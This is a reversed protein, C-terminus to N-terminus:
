RPWTFLSLLQCVAVQYAIDPENYEWPNKRWDLDEILKKMSGNVGGIVMGPFPGIKGEGEGIYRAGAPSNVNGVWNHFMVFSSHEAGFGKMNSLYCKGIPNRGFLYHVYEEAADLYAKKKEKDETLLSAMVLLGGTHGVLSNSGWWYGRVAMGYGRKPGTWHLTADATGLIAKKASAVLVPDAGKTHTYIWILPYFADRDGPEFSKGQAWDWKACAEHVIDDFEKKGGLRFYCAAATARWLPYDLDGRMEGQSLVHGPKAPDAPWPHPKEKLLNWSRMSEDVCKRAFAEDLKSEKWVVAAYALAAARGMTTESNPMTLQVATKVSEPPSGGAQHVRGFAAGTGDHDRILFETGFRIEDLVDPLGNGSEPINLEKDKPGPASMEYTCLMLNQTAVTNSTYKNFDGADWWGGHVDYTKPDIVETGVTDHWAKGQIWKYVKAESAQNPGLFARGHNWLGGHKELKEGDARNYYFAKWAALGAERYPREALNFKYSRVPSPGALVFYYRGPAAFESFDLQAVYDGSDRDRQGGGFPQLARPQDALKWVTKETKDDRLEIPLSEPLPSDSAVVAMKRGKTQYGIQDVWLRIPSSLTVAPPVEGPAAGLLFLVMWPGFKVMRDHEKKHVRDGNRSVRDPGRKQIRYDKGEM